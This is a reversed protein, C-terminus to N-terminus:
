TLELNDFTDVAHEIFCKQCDLGRLKRGEPGVSIALFIAKEDSRKVGVWWVVGAFEMQAGVWM